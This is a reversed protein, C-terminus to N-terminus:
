FAKRKESQSPTLQSIAVSNKKLLMVYEDLHMIEKETNGVPVSFM